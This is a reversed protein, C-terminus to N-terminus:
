QTGAMVNYCTVADTWRDFPGTMSELQAPTGDALYLHGVYWLRKRRSPAKGRVIGVIETFATYTPITRRDKSFAVTAGHAIRHFGLRQLKVAVNKM